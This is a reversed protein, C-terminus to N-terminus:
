LRDRGPGLLEKFTLTDSLRRYSYTFVEVVVDRASTGSAFLVAVEAMVQGIEDVIVYEVLEDPDDFHQLVTEIPMEARVAVDELTVADFGEASALAYCAASILERQQMALQHDETADTM